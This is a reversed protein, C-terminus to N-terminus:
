RNIAKIGTGITVRITKEQIPPEYYALWVAMWVVMLFIFFGGGLVYLKQKYTM